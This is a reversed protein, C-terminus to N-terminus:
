NIRRCSLALEAMREKEEMSIMEMNNMAPDEPLGNRADEERSLEALEDFRAAFHNLHVLLVSNGCPGTHIREFCSTFPGRKAWKRLTRVRFPLRDVIVDVPFFGEMEILLQLSSLQGDQDFDVGQTHLPYAKLQPETPTGTHTTM